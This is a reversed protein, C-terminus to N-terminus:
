NTRKRTDDDFIFKKGKDLNFTQTSDNLDTWALTSSGSNIIVTILHKDTDVSITAQGSDIQTLLHLGRVSIPTEGTRAIQASGSDLDLVLNVPLTQAFNIKTKPNLFISGIQNFDVKASGKDGIELSEGQQIVQAKTIPSSDTAVRSQWSVSGSPTALNGELSQSPPSDLSVPLTTPIPSVLNPNTQSKSPQPFLLVM